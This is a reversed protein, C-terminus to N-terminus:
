AHPREEVRRQRLNQLLLISQRCVEIIRNTLARAEARDAQKRVRAAAGGHAKTAGM